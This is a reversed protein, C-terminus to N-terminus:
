SLENLDASYVNVNVQQWIQFLKKAGQALIFPHPSLFAELFICLDILIFMRILSVGPDGFSDNKEKLTRYLTSSAGELKEGSTEKLTLFGRADWAFADLKLSPILLWGALPCLGAACRELDEGIEASSGAGGARANWRPSPWNCLGPKSHGWLGPSECAM